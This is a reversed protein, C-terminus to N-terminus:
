KKLPYFTFTERWLGDEIRTDYTFVKLSGDIGLRFYSLTTNFEPKSLTYAAMNSSKTVKYDLRLSNTKSDSNFRVYEFTGQSIQILPNSKSSSKIVLKKAELALSYAGNVNRTPSDRSVLKTPGGARLTQGVLLTDTPSDFSQWIFKGKSDYLVMNGNPLIKFGVVGKNATGSQWAVRGNAHALILNGDQGLSFTANEGVPNGRNAEWVWRLILRSNITGMRLALTYANPTTNYFCLQFPFTFPDLVRYNAQYEVVFDGFEGQNVYKFTNSAPVKAQAIAFLFFFALAFPKWSSM